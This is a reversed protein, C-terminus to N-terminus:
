VNATAPQNIIINDMPKEEITVVRLMEDLSIQGDRVKDIGALFLPKYGHQRAYDKLHSEPARAIIMEVINEDIDILEFIGTQGMYGSMRCRSCGPSKKFNIKDATDDIDAMKLQLDSPTYDDLCHPCNKRVLRQALIGKLSTAVLYSEIGMDQLRAISSPADNTHLTSFVLHGTLAARIAMMATESDRIEGIMM